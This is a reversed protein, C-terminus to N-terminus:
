DAWCALFCIRRGRLIPFVQTNKAALRRKGAIAANLLVLVFLIELTMLSVLVCQRCAFLGLRSGIGHTGFDIGERAYAAQLNVRPFVGEYAMHPRVLRYGM